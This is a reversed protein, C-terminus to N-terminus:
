QKNTKFKRELGKPLDKSYADIFAKEGYFDKKYSRLGIINIPPTAIVTSSNDLQKGFIRLKKKTM